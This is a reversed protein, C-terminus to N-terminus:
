EDPEQEVVVSVTPTVEGTLKVAVTYTGLEKIPQELLVKRKDFPQGIEKELKAAIDANTVSGYLTGTEGARVAFTLTLREIVESLSEATAVEREEQRAQAALRQRAQKVAEKTAVVALGRPILYNRAYGDKVRKVDGANGLRKVDRLLIVEVM